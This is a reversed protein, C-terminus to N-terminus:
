FIVGQLYVLILLVFKVTSDKYISITYIWYELTIALQSQAMKVVKYTTPCNLRLM